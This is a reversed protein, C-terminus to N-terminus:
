IWYQLQESKLDVKNNDLLITLKPDGNQKEVEM